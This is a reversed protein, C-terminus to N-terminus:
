SRLRPVIRGTRKCYTRYENGFHDLMMREEQPVRVLYLLVSAMLGGLGAIWNQVLLAQALGWLLQSAYMPHRIRRYVGETVLTQQTNIELLPSWNTGLDRHSRWFLWIAAGLFLTGSSGVRAKTAPSWRYNAFNFWSTLSYALPLVFMGVALGTLLSREAPTIRQDTKALQRRQQDYPWRVISEVIMGGFYLAKFLQEM